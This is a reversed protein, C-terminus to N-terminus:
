FEVKIGGEAYFETEFDPDKFASSAWMKKAEIFLFTNEIGAELYSDRASVPDCWNLQFLVGAEFYFAAQTFGNFSSSALKESYYMSYIGAGIYPAVYPERSLQDLTGVVGLQLPHLTLTSPFDGLDSKNEYYGVGLEVGMSILSFNRKWSMKMLILPIDDKHYIEDYEASYFNPEYNIPKFSSYSFSITKNWKKRRESYPLLSMNEGKTTVRLPSEEVVIMGPPLKQGLDQARCIMEVKMSLIGIILISFLKILIKNM